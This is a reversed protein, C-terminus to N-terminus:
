NFFRELLRAEYHALFLFYLLNSLTHALIVLPLDRSKQFLWGFFLSPIFVLVGRTLGQTLLHVLSFLLSAALNAPWGRGLRTMFWGRFFWEEPLAAFCLTIAFFSFAEPRAILLGLCFGLLGGWALYHKRDQPLGPIKWQRDFLPLFLMLGVLLTGRGPWAFVAGGLILAAGCILTPIKRM